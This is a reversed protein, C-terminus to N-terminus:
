TRLKPDVIGFKIAVSLLADGHWESLRNLREALDELTAAGSLEFVATSNDFVAVVRSAQPHDVHLQQM